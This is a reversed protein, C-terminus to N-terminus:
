SIGVEAVSRLTMTVGGNTLSTQGPILTAPAIAIQDYTIGTPSSTINQAGGIAVGARVETQEANTLSRSFVWSFRYTLGVRTTFLAPTAGASKAFLAVAGALLAGVILWRNTSSRSM